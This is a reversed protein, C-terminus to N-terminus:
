CGAPGARGGKLWATSAFHMRLHPLLHHLASPQARISPRRSEWNSLRRWTVARTSTLRSSQLHVPAGWGFTHFHPVSEWQRRRRNALRPGKSRCVRTALKHPTHWGGLRALLARGPRSSPDQDPRMRSM